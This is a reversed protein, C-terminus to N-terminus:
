SCDRREGQQHTLEMHRIYSETGKIAADGAGAILVQWKMVERIEMEKSIGKNM